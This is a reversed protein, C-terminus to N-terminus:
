HEALRYALCSSRWPDRDGGPPYLDGIWSTAIPACASEGVALGLRSVLLMSYTTAWAALGTLSGWVAIGAALLGKRSMRDALLGMPLGVIAYLWTFISGIMGIQTDTLGFERRLPEALAGGVHRDYFNMINVLILM